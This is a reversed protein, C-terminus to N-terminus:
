RSSFKYGEYIAIAYFLLDMAEFNEAMVAVLGPISVNLFAQVLPTGTHQAIFVVFSMANGLVCGTLALIAGLIGFTPDPEKRFKQIAIGVIFGVAIAMLGLEMQTIVTVVTWLVAGALMAIVGVAFVALKNERVDEEVRVSQEESM